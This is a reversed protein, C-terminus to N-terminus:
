RRPDITKTTCHMNNASLATGITVKIRSQLPLRNLRLDVAQCVCVDVVIFGPSQTYGKNVTGTQADNRKM